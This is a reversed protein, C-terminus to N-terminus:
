SIVPKLWFKQHPFDSLGIKHLIKRQNWFIDIKDVRSM